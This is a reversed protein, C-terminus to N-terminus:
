LMSYKTYQILFRNTCWLTLCLHALQCNRQRPYTSLYVLSPVFFFVFFRHHIHCTPIPLSWRLVPKQSRMWFPCICSVWQWRGILSLLAWFDFSTPAAPLPHFLYSSHSCIIGTILPDPQRSGRGLGFQSQTRMFWTVQPCACVRGALWLEATRWRHFTFCVWGGKAFPINEQTAIWPVKFMGGPTEGGSRRM